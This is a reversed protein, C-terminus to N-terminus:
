FGNSIIHWTSDTLTIKEFYKKNFITNLSVLQNIEGIVEEQDSPFLIISYAQSPQTEIKSILNEYSNYFSYQYSKWIWPEILRGCYNDYIFLKRSKQINDKIFYSIEQCRQEYPSKRVQYNDKFYAQLYSICLSFLGLACIGIIIKPNIKKFIRILIKLIFDGGIGVVIYIIPIVTFERWDSLGRELLILPMLLILYSYVLIHSKMEKIKRILVFLGILFLIFIPIEITIGWYPFAHNNYLDNKPVIKGMTYTFQDFYYQIGGHTSSVTANINVYREHRAITMDPYRIVRAITPSLVIFAMFILSCIALFIKTMRKEKFYMEISMIAVIVGSLSAVYLQNVAIGLFLAGMFTQWIDKNKLGIYCFYISGISLFPNFTVNIWPVKFNNIDWISFALLFAAIIAARRGWMSKTFFYVIIITLLSVLLVSIWVAYPTGNFLTFLSAVLYAPMNTPQDGIPNFPTAVIGKLIRQAENIWFVGDLNLGINDIKYLRLLLALLLIGFLVILDKKDFTKKEVLDKNTKKRSLIAWIGTIVISGLWM